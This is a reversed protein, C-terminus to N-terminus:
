VELASVVQKMLFFHWSRRKGDDDFLEDPWCKRDKAELDSAYQLLATAGARTLDETSVLAIAADIEAEYASCSEEIHAIWAPDDTAVRWDEEAFMADHFSSKRREQPITAELEDEGLSAVHREYALKHREIAAFVQDPLGLPGADSGPIQLHYSIPQSPISPRELLGALISRTIRADTTEGQIHDFEDNCWEVARAKLKLVALDNGSLNEIRRVLAIVINFLRSFEADLATDDISQEQLAGCRNLAFIADEFERSLLDHAEAPSSIAEAISPATVLAAANVAINM